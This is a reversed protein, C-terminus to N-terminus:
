ITTITQQEHYQERAEYVIEWNGFMILFIGRFHIRYCDSDLDATIMVSTTVIKSQDKEMWESVARTVFHLLDIVGECDTLRIDPFKKRDIEVNDTNLKFSQIVLTKNVFDSWKMDLNETM